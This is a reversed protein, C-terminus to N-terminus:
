PIIQTRKTEVIFNERVNKQYEFTELFMLWLTSKFHNLTWVWATCLLESFLVQLNVHCKFTRPSFHGTSITLFWEDVILFLNTSRFMFFFCWSDEIAWYNSRELGYEPLVHTRSGNPSSPFVKGLIQSSVVEVSM